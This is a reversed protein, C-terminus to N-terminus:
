KIVDPAERALYKGVVHQYFSILHIDVRHAFFFANTPCPFDIERSLNMEAAENESGM